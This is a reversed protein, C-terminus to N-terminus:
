LYLHSENYGSLPDLQPGVCSVIYSTEGRCIVIKLNNVGFFPVWSRTKRELIACCGYYRCGNYCSDGTHWRYLPMAAIDVLAAHDVRSQADLCSCLVMAALFSRVVILAASDTRLKMAAEAQAGAEELQQTLGTVVLQAQHSASSHVRTELLQLAHRALELQEQLKQQQALAGAM